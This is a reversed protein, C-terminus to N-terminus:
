IVVSRRKTTTAVPYDDMCPSSVRLCPGTRCIEGLSLVRTKGSFIRPSHIPLTHGVIPEDCGPIAPQRKTTDFLLHFELFTVREFALPSQFYVNAPDSVDGQGCRQVHRRAPRAHSCTQIQGAHRVQPMGICRALTMRRSGPSLRNRFDV